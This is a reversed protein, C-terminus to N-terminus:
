TNGKIQLIKKSQRQGLKHCGCACFFSVAYTCLVDFSSIDSAVYAILLVDHEPTGGNVAYRPLKSLRWHAAAFSLLSALAAAAVTSFPTICIDIRRSWRSSRSLLKGFM